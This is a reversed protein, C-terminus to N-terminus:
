GAYSLQYLLQNTILLDVTRTREGAGINEVVQPPQEDAADLNTVLQDGRPDAEAQDDDDGVARLAEQAPSQDLRDVWNKDDRPLWRAYIDVTVKISSHGLQDRIYTLPAGAQIMLIAYTHRLCHPSLPTPLSAMKLLRKFAKRVRSEDLPSGEGTPFVWAPLKGTGLRLAHTKQALELRKLEDALQQSVDVTRAKGSKPSGLREAPSMGRRIAELTRRVHIEKAQLDCDSRKLGLAEGIRLGTRALLLFLPYQRQDHHTAAGLFRELQEATMARVEDDEDPRRSPALRRGLGFAPNAILLEDDVAASLMTSITARMIRVTNDSLGSGLKELLFSRLSGVRLHAIQIAGFAPLIHLRLNQEYSRRTKPKITPAVLDLWRQAYGRVTVNPDVSPLLHGQRSELTKEAQVREAERRTGCTVLHRTGAGDRYDVVWVDKKARRRKRISAM